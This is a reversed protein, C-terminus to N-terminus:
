RNLEVLAKLIAEADEMDCRINLKVSDGSVEVESLNEPFIESRYLSFQGDKDVESAVVGVIKALKIANGRTDSEHKRSSSLREQAANWMPIWEPLIRRQIEKVIEGPKRTVSVNIRPAKADYSSTVQRGEADRPWGASISVKDYGGSWGANFYVKFGEPALMQVVHGDDRPVLEWGLGDAVAPAMEKLRREAEQRDM